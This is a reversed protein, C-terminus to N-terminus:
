GPLVVMERVSGTVPEVAFGREPALVRMAMGGSPGLTVRVAREIRAGRPPALRVRPLLTTLVGKIVATAFNQGICIRPSMSFPLYAAPDPQLSEWRQPLFREPEAYLEPMHHTFYHSCIVKDGRAVTADGLASERTATRITYPVPPFLRLSERLVRDLLPLRSAQDPQMPDGHLEADLEDALESAVEPHQSLLFLTWTLALATTEHSAGFLLTIQGVLDSPELWDPKGALARLM